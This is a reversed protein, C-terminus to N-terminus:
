QTRSLLLDIPFIGNSTKVFNDPRADALLVGDQPRHWAHNRKLPEFGFNKLLTEIEQITPVPDNEDEADRWHQECVLCPTKLTEDMFDETLTIGQIQIDDQFVENTLLIRQLYEKPTAKVIEGDQSRITMGYQNEKLVKIAKNKQGDYFVLHEATKFSVMTLENLREQPILQNNKQAWSLVSSEFRQHNAGISEQEERSFLEEFIQQNKTRAQRADPLKRATGRDPQITENLHM